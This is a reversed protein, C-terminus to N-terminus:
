HWYMQLAYLRQARPFTQFFDEIDVVGRLWDGESNSTTKFKKYERNNGIKTFYM